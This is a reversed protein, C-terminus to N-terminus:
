VHREVRPYHWSTCVPEFGVKAYCRNSFPNRLDTYLCVFLKGDAYAREVLAATVSGAYGKSRFRPPTYVNGIALGRKTQRVIGAISVPLNNAIWFMHQGDSAAKQLKERNPEPDHPTAERSFERLWEAVLNADTPIVVRSAGHAGPYRPSNRIAHIQQPIPEVFDIGLVGAREAFWVATQGSGVVGPFDLDRVQDALAYCQQRDLEGLVIPWGWDQVACAGPDGLSWVRFVSAPNHEANALKTLILNHRVEDMELSRTHFRAFGKIDV